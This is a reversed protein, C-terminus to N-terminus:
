GAQVVDALLGTRAAVAVAETRSTVGLKHLLQSVYGKVSSTSVCLLGSIERNSLGRSMHTLVQQEVSTLPRTLSRDQRAVERLLSGALHPDVYTNGVAVARVAEIIRPSDARKHLVGSSGAALFERLVVADAQAAMGLSTLWYPEKSLQACLQAGNMAGQLDYSVLVLDVSVCRLIALAREASQASGVVELDGHTSLVHALGECVVPHDDVVYVRSVAERPPALASISGLDAPASMALAGVVATDSDSFRTFAHAAVGESDTRALMPAEASKEEGSV